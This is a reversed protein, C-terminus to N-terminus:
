LNVSYATLYNYKMRCFTDFSLANFLMHIGQPM